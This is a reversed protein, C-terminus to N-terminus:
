GSQGPNGGTDVGLMSNILNQDDGQTTRAPVNQRTYTRNTQVPMRPQDGAGTDTDQQPPEAITLIENLDPQDLYEGVKQLYKNMDLTIGQQQLIPMMPVVVTQIIQNLAALRQQPSQHMLSYPDVRLELDEFRGRQRMQPTVRRTASVNPLGPLSHSTTQTLFPDHWWYWLLGRAVSATFNVTSDQMDALGASANSNLMEDQAATKSQPGRGGLLELNGGVYSFLDKCATAVALVQQIHAGGMVVQKIKDPNDVRLVEGDNANMVRNGDADAGGSVYTNEKTRESARIMKRYAQNAALHLDMLDQIPGKPMANGPVVLYPLLHYPGTDPGVWRQTRLPETDLGAQNLDALTLVLRHRPLYVEWLDVHPEFEEENASLTTRGLVSIREDGELNYLEDTSPQLQARAKGDYHKSDKVADLPVRYRHGIFTVEAFDRAHLDFCWDDLDVRSAFPQGAGLNWGYVAAEAPTALAVKCIGISFLGDMVVRRLTEALRMREIEQNVWKQMAAVTPKLTRDFTTLLVRPNKAVLNRGVVQCYLSILNVPVKDEAGEISWHNGVYQRVAERREQRFRQLALRSRQIAQTLRPIDIHSKAV